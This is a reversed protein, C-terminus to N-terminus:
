LGEWVQKDLTNVSPDDSRYRVPVRQALAFKQKAAPVKEEASSPQWYSVGTYPGDEGVWFKYAIALRVTDKRRRHPVREVEVATIQGEVLPWRQSRLMSIADYLDEFM